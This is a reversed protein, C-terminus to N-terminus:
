AHGTGSTPGTPDVVRCDPDVWCPHDPFAAGLLALARFLTDAIPGVNFAQADAVEVAELADRAARAGLVSALYINQQQRFTLRQDAM